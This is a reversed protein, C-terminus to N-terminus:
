IKTFAVAKSRTGIVMVGQLRHDILELTAQGRRTTFRIVLLGSEVQAAGKDSEFSSSIACIGAEDIDLALAVSGPTAVGKWQGSVQSM